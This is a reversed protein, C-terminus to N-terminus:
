ELLMYIYFWNYDKLGSGGSIANASYGRSRCHDILRREMEYAYKRSSTEYLYVMDSWGNRDHYAERSGTSGTVGIYISSGSWRAFQGLARNLSSLVKSPHGSSLFDWYVEM